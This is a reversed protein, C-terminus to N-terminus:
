RRRRWRTLRQLQSKRKRQCAGRHVKANAIIGPKRCVACLRRGQADRQVSPRSVPPGDANDWAPASQRVSEAGSPTIAHNELGM